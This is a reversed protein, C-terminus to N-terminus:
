KYKQSKETQQYRIRNFITRRDVIAIAYLFTKWRNM